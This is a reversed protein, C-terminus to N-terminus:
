LFTGDQIKFGRLLQEVLAFLIGEITEGPQRFPPWKFQVKHLLGGGGEWYSREIPDQIGVVAGCPFVPQVLQHCCKWVWDFVTLNLQITVRCLRKLWIHFDLM